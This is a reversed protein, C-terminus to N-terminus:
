AFDGNEDGGGFREDCGFPFRDSRFSKECGYEVYLPAFRLFVFSAVDFGRLRCAVCASM